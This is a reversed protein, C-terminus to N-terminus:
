KRAILYIDNCLGPFNRLGHDALRLAFRPLHKRSQYVTWNRGVVQVDSLKLHRALSPLEDATWFRKHTKDMFYSHFADLNTKGMGVRIRRLLSVANEFDLALRGGPKLVAVCKELLARPHFFNLTGHSVVSDVSNLPVTAAPEYQTLDQQVLTVGYQQLVRRLELESFQQYFKTSAFTDVVTVHMGMRALVASIPSYGGGLDILRGNPVYALRIHWVERAILEPVDTRLAEPLQSRVERIISRIDADNMPSANELIDVM